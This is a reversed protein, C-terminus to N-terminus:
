RSPAWPEHFPAAKCTGSAQRKVVALGGDFVQYDSITSTAPDFVIRRVHSPLNLDTLVVPASNPNSIPYSEAKGCAGYCYAGRTLDASFVLHYPLTMPAQAGVQVIEAGSCDEGFTPAAVAPTALLAFTFAACTGRVTIM